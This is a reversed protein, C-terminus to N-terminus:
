GSKWEPVFEGDRLAAKGALTALEQLGKRSFGVATWSITRDPQVLFLSPVHTIGFATSVPYQEGAEDILTPFSLGFEATFEAAWDAPDQCIGVIQLGGGRLRELFPLTFQCTPCSVKFLVLLTPGQALFEALTRSNGDLDRMWFDPSRDGADLTRQGTRSAM